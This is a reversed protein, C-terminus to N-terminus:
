RQDAHRLTQVLSDDIPAGAPPVVLWGDEEVLDDGAPASVRLDAGDVAVDVPGPVLGIQDRLPKPIVLRGAKDITAKM